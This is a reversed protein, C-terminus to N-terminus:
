CVNNPIPLVHTKEWQCLVRGVRTSLTQRDVNGLEDISISKSVRSDHYPRDPFLLINLVPFVLIDLTCNVQRLSIRGSSLQKGQLSLAVFIPFPVVATM